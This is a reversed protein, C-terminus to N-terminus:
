LTGELRAALRALGARTRTKITGLPLRLRRAIESQSLGHWYALELPVREREPLEALAAHTCFALWDREAREDPGPEQSAPEPVSELVDHQARASGRISDVIANRAIAFIWSAASGREPRYTAAGRWVAIFAEQVADEAGSRDRLRRLALGYVSRVFRQYLAEFAVADREAVRCLLESDSDAVLQLPPSEARRIPQGASAAM